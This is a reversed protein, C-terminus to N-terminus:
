TNLFILPSRQFSNNCDDRRYYRHQALNIEHGGINMPRRIHQIYLLRHFILVVLIESKM